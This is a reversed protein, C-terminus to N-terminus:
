GQSIKFNIINNDLGAIKYLKAFLSDDENIKAKKMIDERDVSDLYQIFHNPIESYEKMGSRNLTFFKMKLSSLACASQIGEKDAYFVYGRESQMLYGLICDELSLYIKKM